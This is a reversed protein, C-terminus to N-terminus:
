LDLEKDARMRELFREVSMDDYDALIGRLGTTCDYEDNTSVIEPAVHLVGDVVAVSVRATSFMKYLLSPLVNIDIVSEKMQMGIVGESSRM